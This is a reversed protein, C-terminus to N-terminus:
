LLLSAEIAGWVAAITIALSIVAAILGICLLVGDEELFALALLMIVLVPIVNSFPIPALLTGCLVLIVCGIVRKTAEFPTSWRPRVVREIRRLVPIAGNLLRLLRHTSIRRMAIRRPLVPEKHGLIMQVAPIALLIGILPSTGPVLGVLSVLLMVIGFSRERLNQVIWEVTIDGTPADRVLRELIVSTPDRM